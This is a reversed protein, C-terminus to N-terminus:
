MTEIKRCTHIVRHISHWPLDILPFGVPLFEAIDAYCWFSCGIRFVYHICSGGLYNLVNQKQGEPDDWNNIAFTCHDGHIHKSAFKMLINLFPHGNKTYEVNIVLNYGKYKKGICIMAEFKWQFLRHFVGRIFIYFIYNLFFYTCLSGIHVHHNEIYRKMAEDIICLLSAHNVANIGELSASHLAWWM